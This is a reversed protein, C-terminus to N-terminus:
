RILPLRVGAYYVEFCMVYLATVGARGIRHSLHDSGPDWTGTEAGETHQRDRVDAKLSENWAEWPDGGVQFIFMTGWFVTEPTHDTLPLFDVLRAAANLLVEVKRPDFGAKIRACGM